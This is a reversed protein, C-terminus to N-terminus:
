GGAWFLELTLYTATCDIAFQLILFGAALFTSKLAASWGRSKVFYVPLVVLPGPFIVMLPTFYRWLTFGREAADCHAWHLVTLLFVVMDLFLLPWEWEIDVIAYVSGSVVAWVLLFVLCNRKKRSYPITDTSTPESSELAFSERL